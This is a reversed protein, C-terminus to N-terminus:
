DLVKVRHGDPEVKRARNPRRTSLAEARITAFLRKETRGGNAGNEKAATVTARMMPEAILTRNSSRVEASM